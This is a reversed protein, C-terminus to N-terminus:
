RLSNKLQEDHRECKYLMDPEVKNAGSCLSGRIQHGGRPFKGRTLLKEAEYSTSEVGGWAGM